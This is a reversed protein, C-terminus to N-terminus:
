LWGNRRGLDLWTLKAEELSPLALKDGPISLSILQQLREALEWMGLQEYTNAVKQIQDNKERQKKARFKRQREAATMAKGTVPRGRLKPLEALQLTLKDHKDRM